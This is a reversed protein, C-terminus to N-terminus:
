RWNRLAIPQPPPVTVPTLLLAGYACFLKLVHSLMHSILSFSDLWVNCQKLVDAAKSQRDGATKLSWVHSLENLKSSIECLNKNISSLQACEREGGERGMRGDMREREELGSVIDWRPLNYLPVMRFCAMVARKRQSSVLKKWAQMMSSPPHEVQPPQLLVVPNVVAIFNPLICWKHTSIQHTGCVLIKDSLLWASTYM